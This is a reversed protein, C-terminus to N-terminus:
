DNAFFDSNLLLRIIIQPSFLVLTQKNQEHLFCCYRGGKGKM